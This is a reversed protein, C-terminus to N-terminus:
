ADRREDLWSQFAAWACLYQDLQAFGASVEVRTHLVCSACLGLPEPANARKCRICM